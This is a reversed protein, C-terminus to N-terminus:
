LVKGRFIGRPRFILMLVMVAFAVATKYDPPVLPGDGIWPYTSLEEMAGIILGGAIAGYPQGLGGLIAAAFMPLLMDWGMTPILRTDMGVFVGAVAVLGAGLIWTWIVVRETNIGSVRALDADDSMARMAKGTRTRTLFHHLALMLVVTLVVIYIHRELIRLPQFEKLPFQIGDAYNIVDVGFFLQVLSRLMLAVGFSAIVVIIMSRARRFPKYFLRDILIAVAATGAFALPLGILLRVNVSLDRLPTADLLWVVLLGIYAGAAMLDGHAFHAF